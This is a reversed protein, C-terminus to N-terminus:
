NKGGFWVNKVPLQWSHADGKLSHRYGSDGRVCMIAMVCWVNALFTLVFACLMCVMIVRVAQKHSLTYVGPVLIHSRVRPHMHSHTNIRAHTVKQPLPQKDAHTCTPTLPQQSLREVARGEQCLKHQPPSDCVTFQDALDAATLVLTVLTCYSM